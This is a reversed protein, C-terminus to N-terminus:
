NDRMVLHVTDPSFRNLEAQTVLGLQWMTMLCYIATSRRLDDFAQGMEEDRKHILEYLKLYHEHASVADDDCLTRCENLIRRSFRDLAVARIEKFVRWDPEPIGMEREKRHIM